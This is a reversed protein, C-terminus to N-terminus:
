GKKAISDLTRVLQSTQYNLLYLLKSVSTNKSPTNALSEIESASLQTNGMFGSKFSLLSNKKIFDAVVKLPAIEDTLSFIFASLGSLSFDSKGSSVKFLTNKAIKMEGGAAKVAKRLETAHSVKM